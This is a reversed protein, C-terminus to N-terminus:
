LPHVDFKAKQSTRARSYKECNTCQYRQFTSAQTRYFGRKQLEDSGCYPCVHGEGDFLRTLRNVYPKMHEFVKELLEVDKKNYRLMKDLGDNRGHYADLWLDFDTKIKRGLGLAEALYDLKNYSLDFHRKSLKLTDITQTPGLPELGLVMVRANLVRLDFKDINHAVVIDAERVLDALETVIREDDQDRAEHETLRASMIKKGHGWKAAWTLLFTDHVMQGHPVYDAYARWVHALRPATEIDFFLIKLKTAQKQTM